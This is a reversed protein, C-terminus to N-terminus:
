RAAQQSTTCRQNDPTRPGLPGIGYAAIEDCTVNGDHNTDLDIAGYHGDVRLLVFRNAGKPFFSTGSSSCLGGSAALVNEESWSDGGGEIRVGNVVAGQWRAFSRETVQMKCDSAVIVTAGPLGDGDMDYVRPDSAKLPLPDHLPDALHAGWVEVDLQSQYTSGKTPADLLAYFTRTPISAILAQPFTSPVGLVPSQEIMCNTLKHSLVGPAVTALEIKALSESLTELGSNGLKICSSTEAWLMWTGDPVLPGTAEDAEQPSDTAADAAASLDAFDGSPPQPASCSALATLLLLLAHTRM